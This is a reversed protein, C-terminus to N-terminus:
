QEDRDLGPPRERENKDVQPNDVGQEDVPAQRDSWVLGTLCGRMRVCLQHTPTRAAEGTAAPDRREIVQRDPARSCGAGAHCKVLIPQGPTTLRLGFWIPRPARM